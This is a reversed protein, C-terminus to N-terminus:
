IMSIHRGNRNYQVSGLGIYERFDSSHLFLLVEVILFNRAWKWYVYEVAVTPGLRILMSCPRFFCLCFRPFFMWFRDCCWSASTEAFELTSDHTRKPTGFSFYTETFLSMARWANAAPSEKKKRKCRLKSFERRMKKKREREHWKKPQRKRNAPLHTGLSNPQASQLFPFFCFFSFIHARKCQLCITNSYISAFIRCGSFQCFPCVCLQASIFVRLNIRRGRARIAPAYTFTLAYVFLSFM